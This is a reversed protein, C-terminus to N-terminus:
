EGKLTNIFRKYKSEKNAKYTIGARNLFAKFAKKYDHDGTCEYEIEYDCLGNYFNIDLSIVANDTVYDSRLTTLQGLVEFPPFENFSALLELLEKDQLLPENIIKEHEVTEGNVKEKLTFLTEGNRERIRFAYHESNNSRYYTNIQPIFPISSYYCAILRQVEDSNLLMKLETEVEHKM